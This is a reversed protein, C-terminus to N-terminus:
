IVMYMYVYTSVSIYHFEKNEQTKFNITFLNWYGKIKM